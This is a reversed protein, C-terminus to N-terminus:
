ETVNAFRKKEQRNKQQEEYQDVAELLDKVINKNGM